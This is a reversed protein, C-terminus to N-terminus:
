SSADNEGGGKIMKFSVVEATKNVRVAEPPFQGGYMWLLVDRM